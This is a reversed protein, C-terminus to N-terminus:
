EQIYLKGSEELRQRSKLQLETHHRINKTVLKNSTLQSRNRAVQNETEHNLM